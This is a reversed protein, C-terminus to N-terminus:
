GKLHWRGKVAGLVYDGGSQVLERATLEEEVLDVAWPRSGRMFSGTNVMLRGNGEWIGARHFHGCVLVRAGEGARELFKLGTKGMGGWVRLIEFSRSPPWLATAFFNLPPPLKPLPVLQLVHAIERARESCAEASATQAAYKRVIADVEKRYRGLERSWPTAHDYVADGHTVLVARDALWAVGKGEDPDHNGRLIEWSIGKKKVREELGRFLRLGRERASDKKRQQWVDGALVLHNVGELLSELM